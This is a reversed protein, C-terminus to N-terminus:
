QIESKQLFQKIRTGLVEHQSIECEWIVLVSWGLEALRAMNTVDRERNRELKPIWFEQRSKPLRARACGPHRHWFCGHVFIAKKRGIFALDPTGPLNKVHLRYRFGLKYILKRVVLEPRTNKNKVLSMRASRATKSLTDM